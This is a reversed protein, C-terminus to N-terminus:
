RAHQRARTSFVGRWRSFRRVGQQRVGEMEWVALAGACGRVEQATKCAAAAHVLNDAVEAPQGDAAGGEVAGAAAAADGTPLPHVWV